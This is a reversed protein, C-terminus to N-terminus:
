NSLLPIDDYIYLKGSNRDRDEKLATSIIEDVRELFAADGIVARCTSLDDGEVLLVSCSFTETGEDITDPLIIDDAVFVSDDEPDIQLILVAQDESKAFANVTVGM